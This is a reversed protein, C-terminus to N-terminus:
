DHEGGPDNNPLKVKYPNGNNDRYWIRYENYMPELRVRTNSDM